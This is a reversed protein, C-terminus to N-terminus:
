GAPSPLDGLTLASQGTPSGNAGPLPRSIVPRALDPTEGGQFISLLAAMRAAYLFDAVACYAIAITLALFLTLGAGSAVLAGLILFGIAWAAVLAVMHLSLFLVTTRLVPGPLRRCIDLTSSIAALASEGHSIVPIAAASLLWNLVWWALWIFFLFLSFAKTADGASIHSAAWWSSSILAAGISAILAALLVAVRIFNLGM